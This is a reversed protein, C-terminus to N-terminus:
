APLTFLLWCCVVPPCWMAGDPSRTEEGGWPTAADSSHTALLQAKAVHRISRQFVFEMWIGTHDLCWAEIIWVGHRVCLRVWVGHRVCVRPSLPQRKLCPPMFLRPTQGLLQPLSAPERVGPELRIGVHYGVHRLLIVLQNTDSFEEAVLCM